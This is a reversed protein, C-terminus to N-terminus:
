LSVLCNMYIPWPLGYIVLCPAQGPEACECHSQAWSRSGCQMPTFREARYHILQIMEDPTGCSRIQLNFPIIVILTNKPDFLNICTPWKSWPDNLYTRHAVELGRGTKSFLTENSCLWVWEKCVVTAAQKSCYCFQTSAVLGSPECASFM